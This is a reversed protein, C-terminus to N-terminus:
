FTSVTALRPRSSTANETEKAAIRDIEQGQLGLYQRSVQGTDDPRRECDRDYRGTQRM